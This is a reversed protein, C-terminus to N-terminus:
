TMQKLKVCYKQQGNWCVLRAPNKRLYKYPWYRLRIHLVLFHWINWTAAFGNTFTKEKPCKQGNKDQLINKSYLLALTGLAFFFKCVWFSHALKTCPSFEEFVKKWFGDISYPLVEITACCTQKTDVRSHISMNTWYSLTVVRIVFKRNHKLVEQNYCITKWLLIARWKVRLLKLLVWCKLFSNITIISYILNLSEAFLLSFPKFVFFFM